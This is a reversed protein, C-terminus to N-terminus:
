AVGVPLDDMLPEPQEVAERIECHSLGFPSWLTNDVWCGTGIIRAATEEAIEISHCEITTIPRRFGKAFVLVLMM